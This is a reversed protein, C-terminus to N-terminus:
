NRSGVVEIEGVERFDTHSWDKDAAQQALTPYSHAVDVLRLEGPCQM